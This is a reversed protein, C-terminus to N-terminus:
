GGSVVKLLELRDGDKLPEIDPVVLLEADKEKRTILVTEPNEGAAAVAEKALSGEGLELVKEEGASNRVFIKLPMM